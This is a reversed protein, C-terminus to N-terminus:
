KRLMLNKAADTWATSANGARGLTPMLDIHKDRTWIQGCHPCQGTETERVKILISEGDDYAFAPPCSNIVLEM